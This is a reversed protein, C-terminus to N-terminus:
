ISVGWKRSLYKIIKQGDALSVAGSCVILESINGLLSQSLDASSGVASGGSTFRAGRTTTITEAGDLFTVSTGVPSIVAICKETLLNKGSYASPYMGYQESGDSAFLAPQKAYYILNWGGGATTKKAVTFVSFAGLLEVSHLFGKSAGFTIKGGSLTPQNLLV